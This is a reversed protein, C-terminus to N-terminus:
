NIRGASVSVDAPAEHCSSVPRDTMGLSVDTQPVFRDVLSTRLETALPLLGSMARVAWKPAISGNRFHDAKLARAM